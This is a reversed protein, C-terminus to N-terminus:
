TQRLGNLVTFWKLCIIIIPTDARNANFLQSSQPYSPLFSSGTIFSLENRILPTLSVSLFYRSVSIASEVKPDVKIPGTSVRWFTM